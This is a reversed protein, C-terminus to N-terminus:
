RVWGGRNRVAYGYRMLLHSAQSNSVGIEEGIERPTLWRYRTSLYGEISEFGTRVWVKDEVPTPSWHPNLWQWGVKPYQSRIRERKAACRCKECCYQHYVKHQKFERGCFKCKKKSM